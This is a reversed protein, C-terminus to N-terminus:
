GAVEVIKEAAMTTKMKQKWPSIGSNMINFPNDLIPAPLIGFSPSVVM